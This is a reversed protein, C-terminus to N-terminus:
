PCRAPPAPDAVGLATELVARVVPDGPLDGHGTRSGPCVDQVLVNVAGELQASEVPEVVADAATRVTVWRPGPPTEDGANLRRLLDSDPSLQACAEPCTGATQLATAANATGHHPSGLTLVRRVVEDGGLEAVYLRAVVGGASYGVVDVSPAESRRLADDVVEGLAEAQQRLDGTGDGATEVVSVERGAAELAVRLPELSATRGGYGPVLVVPGLSRQEVEPTEGRLLAVAVVGAVALAVVAAVVALLRRRAPPM